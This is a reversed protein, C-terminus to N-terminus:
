DKPMIDVTAKISDVPLDGLNEAQVPTVIVSDVQQKYGATLDPSENWSADWPKQIANGLTLIIAVVAAAKFLPMLRQTLKIERAKVTVPQADAAPQQSTMALIREDFDAGLQLQQEEAQCTFVDRYKEMGAPIDKQSFFTRLIHEEELTTEANWYREVLQEIYKYDM